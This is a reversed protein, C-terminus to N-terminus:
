FSNDASPSPKQRLESRNRAAAPGCERIRMLRGLPPRQTEATRCQRARAAPLAGILFLLSEVVIRRRTPRDLAEVNGGHSRTRWAPARVALALTVGPRADILPADRGAVHASPHNADRTWDNAAPTGTEFAPPATVATPDLNEGNPGIRSAPGRILLSKAL